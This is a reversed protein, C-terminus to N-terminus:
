GCMSIQPTLGTGELLRTMVEDIDLDAKLAPVKLGAVLTRDILISVDARKGVARLSAELAPAPLDLSLRALPAADAATAICAVGAFLAARLLGTRNKM